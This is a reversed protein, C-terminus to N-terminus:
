LSRVFKHFDLHARKRKEIPNNSWKLEQIIRKDNKKTRNELWVHKMQAIIEDAKFMCTEVEYSSSLCDLPSNTDDICKDICVEMMPADTTNQKAYFVLGNDMKIGGVFFCGNRLAQILAISSVRALLAEVM